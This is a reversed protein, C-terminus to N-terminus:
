LKNFTDLHLIGTLLLVAATTTNYLGSLPKYSLSFRMFVWTSVNITTDLSQVLGSHIFLNSLFEIIQISFSFLKPEARFIPNFSASLNFYM